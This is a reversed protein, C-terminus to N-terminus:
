GLRGPHPLCYIVSTEKTEPANIAEAVRTRDRRGYSAILANFTKHDFCVVITPQIIEILPRTLELAASNLDRNPISSSM